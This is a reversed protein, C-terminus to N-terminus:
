KKLDYFQYDIQLNKIPKNLKGIKILCSDSYWDSDYTTDVGGILIYEKRLNNGNPHILSITDHFDGNIILHLNWVNGQTPKKKLVFTTDSVNNANFTQKNSCSLLLILVGFLIIVKKM